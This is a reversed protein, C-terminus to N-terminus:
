NDFCLNADTTEKEQEALVNIYEDPLRALTARLEADAADLAEMPTDYGDVEVEVFFEIYAGWKGDDEDEQTTAAYLHPGDHVWGPIGIEGTNDTFVFGRWIM